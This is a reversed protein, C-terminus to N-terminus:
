ATQADPSLAASGAARHRRAIWRALGVTIVFTSLIGIAGAVGKSLGQDAVGAVHYHSLPANTAADSAVGRDISTRAAVAILGDPSTSSHPSVLFALVLAVALGVVVFWASSRGKSM